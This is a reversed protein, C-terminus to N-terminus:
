EDGPEEAPPEDAPPPPAVPEEDFLKGQRAGDITELIKDRFWERSSRCGAITAVCDYHEAKLALVRDEDLGKGAPVSLTAIVDELAKRHRIEDELTALVTKLGDSLAELRGCASPSWPSGADVVTRKRAM